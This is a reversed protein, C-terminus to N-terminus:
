NYQSTKSGSKRLSIRPSDSGTFDAMAAAIEEDMEISELTDATGNSTISGSRVKKESITEYVIAPPLSDINIEKQMQEGKAAWYHALHHENMETRTIMGTVRLEGDIIVVHRLGLGRFNTYCRHISTHENLTHPSVDMHARVDLWYEMEKDSLKVQKVTPYNPYVRHLSDYMVTAAPALVIGGDSLRESPTSYAKSKLLTCLARRLILGRLRGDASVIPFGNHNTTTLVEMVRKVKDVERLCVVPRSMIESVPHYNLMGLSHLSGELFPMHKLKLQIDYMPENFINGTYRAAGFTVMLPLLYTINGCAELVIVCGAITMRAMGGLIAAAGILAYTGSDAVDGGAALNMWHGILRGLAAGALLTPVFLGAPAMIGPTIAALFFYPIFFLILPGSGFSQNGMGDVERFHFLQRMALDGSTFYLSALQNYYGEKCQFQVLREYLEKEQETTDENEEPMPTCQQWCLPLIFSIFSMALTILILELLRKPKTAIKRMRYLSFLYNIHNFLAGLAGGLCGIAIFMPLEYVYFNARGDYLNEFQGLAFMGTASTAEEPFLLGITLQTILACMFARFTTNTSWFSAGEELTFLIGGIPARFAAAIGAAAGFTVFDRKTRDNRLDQFVNWSSTAYKRSLTNGQSVIAGIISGAHIMPGEKGLPLGAAVSFCMGIVKAVLVPVTVISSINVGNLFAKIEPIGSGAAPPEKWCLAGAIIVLFMSIFQFAFFAGATNGEDMMKYCTELRWEMLTETLITVFGGVFAILLGALVVLFWRWATTKRSATWFHGRSQYFRRIQHKRWVVSETDNFDFSELASDFERKKHDHGEHGLGDESYEDVEPFEEELLHHKAMGDSPALADHIVNYVPTAIKSM